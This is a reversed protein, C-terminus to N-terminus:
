GPPQYGEFAARVDPHRLVILAWIGIPIGPICCISTLPILALIAAWVALSYRRARLMQAGGFIIVPAAVISILSVIPFFIGAFMYGLRRDEDTIVPEEGKVLSVIRGLIMVLASLVNLAGVIILGIAPWQLKGKVDSM